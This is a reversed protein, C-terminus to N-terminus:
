YVNQISLSGFMSHIIPDIQREKARRTGGVALADAIFM